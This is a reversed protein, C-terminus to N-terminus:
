KCQTCNRSYKNQCDCFITSRSIWDKNKEKIQELILCRKGWYWTRGASYENM